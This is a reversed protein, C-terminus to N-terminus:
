SWLDILEYPNDPCYLEGVRKSPALTKCREVAIGRTEVISATWIAVVAAVSLIAMLARLARLRTRPLTPTPSM